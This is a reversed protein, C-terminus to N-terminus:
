DGWESMQGTQALWRFFGLRAIEAASWRTGPQTEASQREPDEGMAAGQGRKPEYEWSPEVRWQDM